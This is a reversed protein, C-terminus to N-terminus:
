SSLKTFAEPRETVAGSMAAGSYAIGFGAGLSSLGVAFSAGLVALAVATMELQKVEWYILNLNTIKIKADLKRLKLNAIFLKPEEIYTKRYRV